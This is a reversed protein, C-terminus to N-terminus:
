IMGPLEREFIRLGHPSPKLSVRGLIRSGRQEIWAQAKQEAEEESVAYFPYLEDAFGIDCTLIWLMKTPLVHDETM